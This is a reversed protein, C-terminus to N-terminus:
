EAAELYFVTYGDMDNWFLNVGAASVYDDGKAAAAEYAIQVLEQDIGAAYAVMEAMVAIGKAADPDSVEVAQLEDTVSDMYFSVYTNYSEDRGDYWGFGTTYYSDVYPEYGYISLSVYAGDYIENGEYVNQVITEVQSLLEETVYLEEFVSYRTSREGIELIQEYDPEFEVWGDEDINYGIYGAWASNEYWETVDYEEEWDEEEWSWDDEYDEYDEYDKYDEYEEDEESGSLDPLLLTLLDPNVGLEEMLATVDENELLTGLWGILDAGALYDMVQEEDTIEYSQDPYVIDKYEGESIRVELSGLDLNGMLLGAKLYQEEPKADVQLELSMGMFAPSDITAQYSVSGDEAAVYDEIEIELELTEEQIVMDVYLEGDMGSDEKEQNWLYELHISEEEETLELEFIGGTQSVGVHLVMMPPLVEGATERQVLDEKEKQLEAIAEALGDQYEQSEIGSAQLIYDELEKEGQLWTLYAILCERMEVAGYAVEYEDVTVRIDEGERIQEKAIVVSEPVQSLWIDKVETLMARYQEPTMQATAALAGDLAERMAILDEEALDGSEVAQELLDAADLSLYEESIQPVNAFFILESMNGILETQLLTNENLIYDTLLRIDSSKPDYMASGMLEVQRLADIGILNRSEETLAVKISYGMGQSKQEQLKNYNEEYAAVSKEVMADLLIQQMKGYKKEPSAGLVGTVFLVAVVAIVVVGAALGAILPLRNRKKEM